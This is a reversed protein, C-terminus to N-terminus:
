DVVVRADQQGTAVVSELIRDAEEVSALPGLRVRFITRGQLSVQQIQPRGVQSLRASLRLANDHRSFAGAQVFISTPNVPVTRVEQGALEREVAEVSLGRKPQAAAAPEPATPRASVGPPPALTEATV